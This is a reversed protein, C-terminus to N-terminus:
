TGFCLSLFPIPLCFGVSFGPTPDGNWAPPPPPGPPALPPPVAPVCLDSAADYVTGPGCEAANAAGPATATASVLALAVWLVVTLRDLVLNM